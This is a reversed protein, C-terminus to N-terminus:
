CFTWCEQVAVLRLQVCLIILVALLYVDGNKFICFMIVTMM